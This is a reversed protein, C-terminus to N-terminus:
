SPLYRKLMKIIWPHSAEVALEEMQVPFQIGLGGRCATGAPVM